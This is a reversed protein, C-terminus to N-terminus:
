PELHANLCILPPALSAHPAPRADVMRIPMCSTCRLLGRRITTGSGCLVPPRGAGKPKPQKPKRRTSRPGSHRTTPMGRCARSTTGCGPSPRPSSSTPSSCTSSATSATRGPAVAQGASMGISCAAVPAAALSKRAARAAPASATRTQPSGWLGVSPRPVSMEAARANAAPIPRAPLAAGSTRACNAPMRRHSVLLVGVVCLV